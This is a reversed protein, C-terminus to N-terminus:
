WDYAAANPGRSSVDNKRRDLKTPTQSYWDNIVYSVCIALGPEFFYDTGLEFYKGLRM